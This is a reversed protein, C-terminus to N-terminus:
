VMMLPPQPIEDKQPRWIHLTHPHNNIYKERPPHLQYCCETEEFCLDKMFQMEAWTPTRAHLSVSLHDWQMGWSIIARLVVPNDSPKIRYPIQFAMGDEGAGMITGHHRLITKKLKVPDRM